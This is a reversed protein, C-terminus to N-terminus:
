APDSNARKNQETIEDYERSQQEWYEKREGEAKEIYAGTVDDVKDDIELVLIDGSERFLLLNISHLTFIKGSKVSVRV